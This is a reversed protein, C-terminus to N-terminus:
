PLLEVFKYSAREGSPATLTFTEPFVVPVFEEYNTVWAALYAGSIANGNLSTLEVYTKGDFSSTILLGKFEVIGRSVFAINTPLIAPSTRVNTDGRTKGKVM